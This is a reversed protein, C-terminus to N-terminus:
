LHFECITKTHNTMSQIAHSLAAAAAREEVLLLEGVIRMHHLPRYRLHQLPVDERLVLLLDDGIFDECTEEDGEEQANGM